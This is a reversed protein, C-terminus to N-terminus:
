NILDGSSLFNSIRIGVAEPQEDCIFHGGKLHEIIVDPYILEAGILYEKIIVPDLTGHIILTPITIQKGEYSKWRKRDSRLTRYLNAATTITHPIKYCRIYENIADDPIPNSIGRSFFPVWIHEKGALIAEPFDKISLFHQYWSSRFYDEIFIESVKQQGIPNNILIMNIIILKAIREPHLLAMEQVVAGGWDHGGLHFQGIDLADAVAFIDLAMQNKGYHAAELTRVSDGMGRLDVAIVRYESLYPTVHHWCYSSQPWGHVLILPPHHEAGYLRAAFLGRATNIRTVETPNM